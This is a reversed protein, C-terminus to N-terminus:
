HERVSTRKAVAAVLLMFAGVLLASVPESGATAMEFAAPPKAALGLAAVTAIVLTTRKVM